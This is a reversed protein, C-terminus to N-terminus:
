IKGYSKFAIKLMEETFSLDGEWDMDFSSVLAYYQQTGISDM